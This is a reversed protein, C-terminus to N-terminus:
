NLISDNPSNNPLTPSLNSIISHYSNELNVCLTILFDKGTSNNVSYFQCFYFYIGSFDYSPLDKDIFKNKM